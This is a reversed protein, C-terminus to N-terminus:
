YSCWPYFQHPPPPSSTRAGPSEDLEPSMLHPCAQNKARHPYAATTMAGPSFSVDKQRTEAAQEAPTESKSEVKEVESLCPFHTFLSSNWEPTSTHHGFVVLLAAGRRFKSPTEDRRDNNRPTGLAHHQSPIEGVNAGLSGETASVVPHPILRIPVFDNGCWM